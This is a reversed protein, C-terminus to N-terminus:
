SPIPLAGSQFRPIYGEVSTVYSPNCIGCNYLTGPGENYASLTVDLLTNDPNHLAGPNPNSAPHDYPDYPCSWPDSTTSPLAPNEPSSNYVKVCLSNPNPTGDANLTDPYQLHAKHYYWDVSEAGPNALTAGSAGAWYSYYCSLWKLFKGGLLANGEYNYVDFSTPGLSCAPVNVSNIWNATSTTQIQMLGIGGDCAVVDQHWRSEQWAVAYLMNAPLGYTSAATQLAARLQDQTPNGGQYAGPGCPTPTATPLPTPPPTPPPGATATAGATATPARTPTATPRPTPTVTPFPVPPPKPVNVVSHQPTATPKPTATASPALTVTALPTDTPARISQQPTAPRLSMLTLTGTIALLGLAAVIGLLRQPSSARAWFRQFVRGIAILADRMGQMPMRGEVLAGRRAAEIRGKVLGVAAYM